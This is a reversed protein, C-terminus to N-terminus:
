DLQKALCYDGKIGQLKAGDKTKVLLLSTHGDRNFKYAPHSWDSDPAMEYKGDPAAFALIEPDAELQGNSAFKFKKGNLNAPEFCEFTKDQLSRSMIDKEAQKEAAEKERNEKDKAQHEDYKAQREKAEALIADVEKGTQAAAIRNIYEQKFQHEYTMQNVASTADIRQQAVDEGCGALVLSATLAMATLVRLHKKM